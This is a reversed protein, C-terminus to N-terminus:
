VFFMAVVCVVSVLWAVSRLTALNAVYLAIFAV